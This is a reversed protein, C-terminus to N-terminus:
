DDDDKHKPHYKPTKVDKFTKYAGLSYGYKRGLTNLGVTIGRNLFGSATYLSFDKNFATGAEIYSHKNFSALGAIEYIKFGTKLKKGILGGVIHDRAYSIKFGNPIATKTDPSWTVVLMLREEAIVPTTFLISLLLISIRM